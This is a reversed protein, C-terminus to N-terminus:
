DPPRVAAARRAAAGRQARRVDLGRLLRLRAVAASARDRSVVSRVDGPAGAGGAARPFGRQAVDLHQEGLLRAARVLAPWPLADPDHLGRRHRGAPGDPARVRGAALPQRLEVLVAFLLWLLLLYGVLYAVNPLGRRFVFLTLLGGTLSACSVGWEALWAFAAKVRTAPDGSRGSRAHARPARQSAARGRRAQAHRHLGPRRRRGRARAPARGCPRAQEVAGCRRPAPDRPAGPRDVRRARRRARDRRRGRRPEAGRRAGPPERSRRERRCIASSRSSPSSAAPPLRWC